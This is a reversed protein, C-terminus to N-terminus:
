DWLSELHATVWTLAEKADRLLEKEANYDAEYHTGWALLKKGNEKLAATWDEYTPFEESIPSGHAIEALAILQAGLTEALHSDVSWIARDDWGRAVRQYAWRIENFVKSLPNQALFRATGVWWPHRGIVHEITAQTDLDEFRVTGDEQRKAIEAYEPVRMALKENRRSLRDLAFRAPAGLATDIGNVTKTLGRMIVTGATRRPPTTPNPNFTKM